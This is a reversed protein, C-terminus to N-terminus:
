RAVEVGSVDYNVGDSVFRYEVNENLVFGNAAVGGILPTGQITINNATLTMNVGVQPRIYFEDGAAPSHITIKAVGGNVLYRGADVTSFNATKATWRTGVSLSTWSTTNDGDSIMVQGASGAGADNNLAVNSRHAFVWSVDRSGSTMLFESAAGNGDSNLLDMNSRLGYTWSTSGDGDSKLLKGNTGTATVTPLSYAGNFTLSNLINLLYDTRTVIQRPDRQQGVTPTSNAPFSYLANAPLTLFGLFLVLILNKANLM